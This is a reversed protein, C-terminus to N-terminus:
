IKIHTGDGVHWIYGLKFCNLGALVSQWTYSSGRKMRANLLKGDPYYRARLVRACLSEPNCLLRWVQKALMTMNFSQLDRFGMGGKGKPMCLKWWEQWHIRKHDNDDGWWYQSIANTVGKCINKPIKFVMMAYVPVVQAISKILIDKGGLSLLKEKWGNIRSNVRDILRRFCDSHDAGVMVPLGLYKDSLSKTMINLVEYVETKVDVETNSSFYISSKAESVKQGSNQLVEFNAM